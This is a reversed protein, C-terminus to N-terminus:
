TRVQRIPSCVLISIKLPKKYTPNVLKDILSQLRERYSIISGLSVNSIYNSKYCYCENTLPNVSLVEDFMGMLANIYAKVDQTKQETIDSFVLQFVNDGTSSVIRQAILHVWRIEKRYTLIRHDFNLKTNEKQLKKFNNLVLKKDPGLCEVIKHEKIDAEFTSKSPYDYIKWVADNYTQVDFNDNTYTFQLIGCPMTEYLSKLFLRQKDLEQTKNKAEIQAEVEKTIDLLLCSVMIRNADAVTVSAKLEIWRPAEKKNVPKHYFKFGCSDQEGSLMLQFDHAIQEYSESSMLDVPNKNIQKELGDKTLGSLALIDQSVFDIAIKGNAFVLNLVGGPLNNVVSSLEKSLKANSILLHMNETINEVSMYYMRNKGSQALFRVRIRTWIPDGGEVSPHSCLEADKEKGTESAENLMNFFLRKYVPILRDQLHLAYKQYDEPKIGMTKYFFDNIRLAEVNDGDFQIIQAGGVFSNFLLTAQTSADLFEAFGNSITNKVVMKRIDSQPSALLLKEFAESPIPKSFFYGQMYDAGISKLYDAQEATEVGEAIVPLELWHAMNIVSSLIRGGRTGAENKSIFLMDLKLIDVPVDKLTNLSSYGSGFDDMEIVFGSAQLKKIDEILRKPSNMYASETIELHLYKPDIKYKKALNIIHEPLDTVYFDHRSINVSIHMKPYNNEKWKALFQCAHEWIYQDLRYIFGNNEFVPIFNSPPILTGDPKLWRVLVEAGAMKGNFYDYQPQFYLKFEENEIAEHMDNVIAQENILTQRMENEYYAYHIDFRGKISRLAMMARDAMIEIDVHPDDIVYIGLRPIFEFEPEFSSLIGMVTKYDAEPDLEKLPLLLIFNDADLHGFITHSYRSRRFSDAVLKILEDGRKVGYVDNFVKFQDIDWRVVCFKINPYLKLTDEAYKIFGKKNYLGTKEDIQSQALLSSQQKLREEIIANEKDLLTAEFRGVINTVRHIVLSANFPKSIFDSAGADLAKVRTELDDSGTIVVIPFDHFLPSLSMKKILQFGDMKPMSLDTILCDAEPHKEFLLYAEEGNAATLVNFYKNLTNSLIAVSIPDDDAIVITHKKGTDLPKNSM